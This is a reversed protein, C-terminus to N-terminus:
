YLLNTNIIGSKCYSTFVFNKNIHDIAYISKSIFFLPFKQIIRKYINKESNSHYFNLLNILSMLSFTYSFYLKIKIKRSIWTNEIYRSTGPLSKLGDERLKIILNVFQRFIPQLRRGFRWAIYLICPNTSFNFYARYKTRNFVVQFTKIFGNHSRFVTNVIVYKNKGNDFAM